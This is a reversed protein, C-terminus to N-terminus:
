PMGFLQQAIMSEISMADTSEQNGLVIIVIEDDAYRTVIGSNGESLGLLFTSPRNQETGIAWGYGM